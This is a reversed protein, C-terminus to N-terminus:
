LRPMAPFGKNKITIGDNAAGPWRHKMSAVAFFIWVTLNLSASVEDKIFNPRNLGPLVNFDTMLELNKIRMNM